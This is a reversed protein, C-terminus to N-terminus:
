FRSWKQIAAKIKAWNRGQLCIPDPDSEADEFYVLSKELSWRSSQPYKTEFFGLLAERSYHQMLEHLDWFDKKSGRNAIANLKMAAIDEISLVRIGDLEISKAIPDYRHAMCDVRIGDIWGLVTNAKVVGQRLNFEEQLCYALHDADFSEATFLDLDVSKRHGCHLALGTGGALFFGALLPTEMLRVLLDWLEPSVSERHLKM